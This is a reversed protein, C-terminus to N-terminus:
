PRISGQVDIRARIDYGVLDRTLAWALHERQRGVLWAYAGDDRNVADVAKWLAEPTPPCLWHRLNPDAERLIHHQDDYAPHFFCVTGTAFAEWPKATAWGSGSAPTTFTCRWSALTEYMEGHAVPAITRGLIRQSQDSWTGFLEAKPYHPLVWECLIDLRNNRCDKRNENVIMGFPKRDGLDWEGLLADPVLATLELGSYYMNTWTVWTGNEWSAEFGLTGPDRTDGWREHKTQHTHDYQALVGRSIPWKLDRGKWYNRVDPCLWVEERRGDCADRWRNVGAILFGAYNLFSDQPNTLTGGWNEGVMPIPQNSTGHQGLWMVVADAADFMPDTFERTIALRRVANKEKRIEERCSKGDASTWPNTVNAPLIGDESNRGVLVIEDDPYWRALDRLLNVVDADGGLTSTNATDLNFARGIKGYLIKM